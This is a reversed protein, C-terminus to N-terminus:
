DWLHFYWRSLLKMAEDKMNITEEMIEERRKNYKEELEPEADNLILTRRGREDPESFKWKDGFVQHLYEESYENKYNDDFTMQLCYAIRILVISWQISQDFIDIVDEKKKGEYCKNYKFEKDIINMAYEIFEIPYDKVDDFSIEQPHGWKHKRMYLIMESFKSQLFFDLNWCDSDTFGRKRLQNLEKLREFLKM